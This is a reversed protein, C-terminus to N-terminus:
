PNSNGYHKSGSLIDILIYNAVDTGIKMLTPLSMQAIIQCLSWAILNHLPLATLPFLHM